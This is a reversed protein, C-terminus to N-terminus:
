EVGQSGSKSLGGVVIGDLTIRSQVWWRECLKFDGYLVTRRTKKQFLKDSHRGGVGMM